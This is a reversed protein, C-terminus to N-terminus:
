KIQQNKLAFKTKIRYFLLYLFYKYTGGLTDVKWSTALIIISKPVNGEKTMLDNESNGDINGCLGATRNWLNEKVEVQVMNLGDWKLNVGVSDLSLMIYHAIMEIRLGSVRGPIPLLKGSSTLVPKGHQSLKLIFEKKQLYIIIIRNCSEADIDCEESNKIIINFVNDIADKVLTYTCKSNFSYVKGDFTKYHSGGWTFCSGSQPLKEQITIYSNTGYNNKNMYGVENHKKTYVNTKHKIITYPNELILNHGTFPFIHQFPLSGNYEFFPHEPGYVCQPVPNPVFVATAYTCIYFSAPTFEFQMGEPCKLSCSFSEGNGSCNYGGNFQLNRASCVSASYQCQSGRFNQPCQCVNLSLCNGGNLCPPTCTARCDPVTVWNTRNPIWNGNKCNMTTIQSGDPFQHGPLCTITCTSLRCKINSNM